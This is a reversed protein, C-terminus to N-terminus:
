INYFVLLLLQVRYEAINLIKIIKRVQDKFKLSGTVDARQMKVGNKIQCRGCSWFAM